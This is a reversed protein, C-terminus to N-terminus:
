YRRLFPYRPLFQKRLIYPFRKGWREAWDNEAHEASQVEATIIQFESTGKKGWLHIRHKM